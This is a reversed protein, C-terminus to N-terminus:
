VCASYIVTAPHIRDGMPGTSQAAAILRYGGAPGATVLVDARESPGLLVQEVSVPKLLPRADRGLLTLKAGDLRLRFYTNATQGSL